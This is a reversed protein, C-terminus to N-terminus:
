VEKVAGELYGVLFPSAEIHIHESESGVYEHLVDYLGPYIREIEKKLCMFLSHRAQQEGLHRVRLDYALDSYHLSGKMHSGDHTSTIIPVKSFAFFVADIVPFLQFLEPRLHNVDVGEKGRM